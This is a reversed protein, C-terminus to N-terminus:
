PASCGHIPRRSIAGRARTKSPEIVSENKAQSIATQQIALLTNNSYVRRARSDGCIAKKGQAVTATHPFASAPGNSKSSQTAELQPHVRRKKNAGYDDNVHAAQGFDLMNRLQAQQAKCDEQNAHENV